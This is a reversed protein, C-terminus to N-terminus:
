VEFDACLQEFTLGSSEGLFEVSFMYRYGSNNVIMHPVTTNFLYYTDPEYALEKFKCTVGLEGDLFMCQSDGNGKVFMNIGVRRNNDIHWNCCTNPDVRLVGAHFTYKTALVGFLHDNALITTPVPLARFGFYDIWFKERAHNVYDILEDRITSKTELKRYMNLM